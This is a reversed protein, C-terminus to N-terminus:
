RTTRKIRTLEMIHPVEHQPAIDAYDNTREHIFCCAVDELMCNMQYINAQNRTVYLIDEHNRTKMLQSFWDEQQGLNKLEEETLVFLQDCMNKLFAETEIEILEDDVLIVNYRFEGL